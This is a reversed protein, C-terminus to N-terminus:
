RRLREVAGKATNRLFVLPHRTLPEIVPLAKRDGYSALANIAANRAGFSPEAAVKLLAQFVERKNPADKLRGLISIALVRTPEPLGKRIAELARERALEPRHGAWWNLAMKRYEDDYDTMTWARDALQPDNALDLRSSFASQRVENNPHNELRTLATLIAGSKPLNGLIQAASDVTRPDINDLLRLLFPEGEASRLYPLYRRLLAPDQIQGAFAVREAPTLPSMMRDLIRAKAAANPAHHFLAVRQDSTLPIRQDIEALLWVEPDVLLPKGALDGLDLRAETGELTMEKKVWTSGDLIWVPLDLRYNPSRQTVVLTKGDLTVRLRPVNPTFFWQNMFGTLDRGSHKSWTEFFAKTDFATYGREKLYAQCTRWFTEEGLLHMLMFMRSAGGPYALGDFMDIPDKYSTDVMARNPESMHGGLAGQFTEYRALDFADQGDRERSYFAPLFSAWGENIWIDSWGSTTVLDGFWQHALEHAVLGTEDRVPYASPPHLATITQTTASINEMGGFMYDPVAAQSYKAYPYPVGTLRGYFDVIRATDGFAARGMAELGTPVWLSVPVRDIREALETYPGAVLSILYTSHPQDIRWHWVDRNGQTRREILKGNSLVSWGKPVTVIGESTAKDDPYDYTPLWNRNDEMEGQTYVVPTKAPFARAAPIFYLGAQPRAFYQITVDVPTQGDGATPLDITLRGAGNQFTTRRDGVRVEQVRLDIADLEIRKAGNAPILRNTAKGQVEGRDPLLSVEWRVHVLDFPHPRSQAAVQGAFALALAVLPLRM